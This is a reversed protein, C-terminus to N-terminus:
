KELFTNASATVGAQLSLTSVYCCITLYSINRKGTRILQKGTLTGPSFYLVTVHRTVSPYQKIHFFSNFPFLNAPVDSNGKRSFKNRIARRSIQRILSTYILIPYSNLKIMWVSTCLTPYQLPSSCFSSFLPLFSFSTLSIAWYLQMPRLHYKIQPM